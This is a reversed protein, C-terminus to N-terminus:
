LWDFLKKADDRKMNICGHSMPRGFNNHWYATHFSYGMKKPYKDNYFFAVSTVNPLYYYTGNEKSGGSMKQRPVKAWITFDGNPTRNYTGSSITFEFVRQDGEYAYTTQTTLDVEVRKNTTSEGLVQPSSYAFFNAILLFLALVTLPFLPKV